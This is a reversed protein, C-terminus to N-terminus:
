VCTTGFEAGHRRLTHRWNRLCAYARTTAETLLRHLTDGSAVLTHSTLRAAHHALETLSALRRDPCGTMELDECKHEFSDEFAQCGAMAALMRRASTRRAIHAAVSLSLPLLDRAHVSGHFGGVVGVIIRM